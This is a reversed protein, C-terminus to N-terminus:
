RLTQADDFAVRRPMTFFFVQLCFSKDGDRLINSALLALQDHVHQSM